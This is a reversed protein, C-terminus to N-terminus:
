SPASTRNRSNQQVTVPTTMCPDRHLLGLGKKPSQRIRDWLMIWGPWMREQWQSGHMHPERWLGQWISNPSERGRVSNAQPWLSPEAPSPTRQWSSNSGQSGHPLSFVLGWLGGGGYCKPEWVYAHEHMHVGVIYLIVCIFINYIFINCM